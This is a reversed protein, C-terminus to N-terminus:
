QKSPLTLYSQSRSTLPYAHVSKKSILKFKQWSLLELGAFIIYIKLILFLSFNDIFDTPMHSHILFYLFGMLPFVIVGLAWFGFLRCCRREGWWSFRDGVGFGLNLIEDSLYINYLKGFATNLTLENYNPSRLDPKHM